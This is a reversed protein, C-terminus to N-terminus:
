GCLKVYGALRLQILAKGLDAPVRPGQVQVTRRFVGRLDGSAPAVTEFVTGLHERPCLSHVLAPKALHTWFNCTSQTFNYHCHRLVKGHNIRTDVGWFGPRQQTDM